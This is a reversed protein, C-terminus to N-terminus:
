FYLFRTTNTSNTTNAPKTSNTTACPGLSISQRKVRAPLDPAPVKITKSTTANVKNCCDFKTNKSTCKGRVATANSNKIITDAATANVSRTNCKLNSEPGSCRCVFVKSSNNGTSNTDCAGLNVNDRKVINPLSPASVRITSCTRATSNTSTSNERRCRCCDFKTSEVCAGMAAVKTNVIQRAKKRTLTRESCTLATEPGRCQCITTRLAGGFFGTQQANCVLSILSVTIFTAARM